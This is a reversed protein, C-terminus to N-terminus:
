EGGGLDLRQTAFRLAEHSAAMIMGGSKLHAAALDDVLKRGQADLATLPEDLLWVPRPDILLRAMALRRRQGASLDGVYQWDRGALGLMAPIDGVTVSEGAVSKDFSLTEGVTLAAKLGDDHGLYHVGYAAAMPLEITGAALPLLGAVQRLLSTKGSGNPGVLMLAQGAALQFSLNEYLRTAGRRCAIEHASVAAARDHSTEALLKQAPSLKDSM